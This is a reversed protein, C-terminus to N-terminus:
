TGIQIEHIHCKSCMVTCYLLSFMMMDVLMFIAKINKLRQMDANEMNGGTAEGTGGLMGPCKSANGM